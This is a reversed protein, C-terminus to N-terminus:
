RARRSTPRRPRHRQGPPPVRGARRHRRPRLSAAPLRDLLLSMVMPGVFRRTEGSTEFKFGGALVDARAEGILLDTLYRKAYAEAWTQTAEKGFENMMKQAQRGLETSPHADVAGFAGDLIRSIIQSQADLPSPPGAYRAELAAALKAFAGPREEKLREVRPQLVDQIRDSIRAIVADTDDARRAIAQGTEKRVRSVNDPDNPLGAHQEAIAARVFESEGLRDRARDTIRDIVASRLLGRTATQALQRAVQEADAETPESPPEESQQKSLATELDRRAEEALLNVRLNNVVLQLSNALPESSWGILSVVLLATVAYSAPKQLLGLDKRLRESAFFRTWRRWGTPTEATTEERSPTALATELDIEKRAIEVAFIWLLSSVDRETAAKEYETLGAEGQDQPQALLASLHELRRVVPLLHPDQGADEILSGDNALRERVKAAKALWSATLRKKAHRASFYLTLAAGILGIVTLIDAHTDAWNKLWYHAAAVKEIVTKPVDLSSGAVIGCSWVLLLVASVGVATVFALDRLKKIAALAGARAIKRRLDARNWRQRSIPLLWLHTLAWLGTSAFLVSLPSM